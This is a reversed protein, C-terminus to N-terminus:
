LASDTGAAALALAAVALDQVATGSSDFLTIQDAATRGPRNGAVVAGLPRIDDRDILGAASAHQLEGITVAQEVVDAVCVALTAVDTALEQKGPSDAGMASVHTGPRLQGGTILPHQSSTVTTVIDASELAEGLTTARAPLGADRLRGALAGAAAPTRAWIAVDALSRVHSIALADFYAQHGAGIVALRQADARALTDVAVADAAATRVATLYGAEIVALPYGTDDDLLLVTSAHAVRGHTVNAPWYTGVKVGLATADIRGAKVAFRNGPDTGTGTVVPVVAARGEDLALFADRVASIAADITVLREAEPETIVKM